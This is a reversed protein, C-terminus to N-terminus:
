RQFLLTGYQDLGRAKGQELIAKRGESTSLDAAGAPTSNGLSPTSPTLTSRPAPAPAGSPTQNQARSQILGSLNRGHAAEYAVQYIEQLASAQRPDGEGGVIANKVIPRDELYQRYEPSELFQPLDPISRSLNQVAIAKASQQMIPMYPALSDQQWKQLVGAFKRADGKGNNANNAVALDAYFKDPDTAYNPEEEQPSFRVPRNTIPDIGTHAIAWERMSEFRRDKEEVGRQADEPTYYVTGTSTRLYPEPARQPEPVQPATETPPTQPEAPTESPTQEFLDDFNLNELSPTENPM